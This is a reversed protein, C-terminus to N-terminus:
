RERQARERSMRKLIKRKEREKGKREKSGAPNKPHILKSPPPKCLLSIRFDRRAGNRKGGEEGRPTTERQLLNKGKETETEEKKREKRKVLAHRSLL